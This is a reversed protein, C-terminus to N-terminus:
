YEKVEVVDPIDSIRNLLWHHVEEESEGECARVDITLTFKYDVAERPLEQFIDKPLRFNNTRAAIFDVLDKMGHNWVRRDGFKNELVFGVSKIHEMTVVEELGATLTAKIKDAMKQREEINDIM